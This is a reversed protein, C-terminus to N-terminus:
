RPLALSASSKWHKRFFAEYDANGENMAHFASGSALKAESIINKYKKM